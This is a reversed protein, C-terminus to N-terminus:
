FGKSYQLFASTTSGSDFAEQRHTVSLGIRQTKDIDYNLAFSATPRTKRLNADMDISDIEGIDSNTASYDDIRNKLDHEIGGSLLM